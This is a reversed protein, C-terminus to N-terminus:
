NKRGGGRALGALILTGTLFCFSIDATFSHHIARDLHNQGASVALVTGIIFHFPGLLRILGPFAHPRIAALVSAIGICGFVSSAMRLWYDLLPQYPIDEAGMSSLTDVALGWSAFTFLFSIGWGVASMVLGIQLIKLGLRPRPSIM